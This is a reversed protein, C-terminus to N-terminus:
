LWGDLVVIVYAEVVGGFYPGRIDKECEGKIIPLNGNKRNYYNSTFTLLSLGALTSINIINISYLDFIENAFKNVVDDLIVLDSRLYYITEVKASGKLNTYKSIM